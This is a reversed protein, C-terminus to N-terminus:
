PDDVVIWHDKGLAGYEPRRDREYLAAAVTEAEARDVWTAARDRTSMVGQRNYPHYYADFRRNFVRYTM